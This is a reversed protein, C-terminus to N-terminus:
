INQLKQTTIELVYHGMPVTIPKQWTDYDRRNGRLYLMANIASSGGLLKGSPWYSGRKLGLCASTSPEAYYGWDALTHQVSNLLM